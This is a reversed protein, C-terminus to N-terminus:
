GKGGTIWGDEVPDRGADMGVGAGRLPAAEQHPTVAGRPFPALDLRRELDQNAPAPDQRLLYLSKSMM